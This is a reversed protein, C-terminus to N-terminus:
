SYETRDIVNQKLDYSLSSFRASFGGVRVIISDALEKSNLAEILKAKDVVSIQIQNGGRMFYAKILWKLSNKGNQGSAVSASLRMNVIWTGLALSPNICSVSNLLATPSTKDRGTMCGGSDAIPSFAKRGDPTAKTKKGTDVVSNFMICAPLFASIKGRSLKQSTISNCTFNFVDCFIKDVEKNDNGFFVLEKVDKLYDEYGIFDYKVANAVYSLSYKKQKFVLSYLAYLGDAANALGCVNVVSFNYEAGGNNFETGTRLCNLALVSRIIQPVNEARLKSFLNIQDTIQKVTNKIHLKYADLFAKFSSIKTNAILTEHLCQALNIGADISGVNSKGSIMTESCGGFCFRKADEEDVGIGKLGNVFSDKNYIAPNGGCLVNDIATQWVEESTDEGVALCLNPKVKGKAAKLCLLTHEKYDGIRANWSSTIEMSKFMEELILVTDEQIPYDKLYYDLNGLNDCDDLYFIFNIRVLAGFIDKAPGILFDKYSSILRDVKYGNPFACLKEIIREVLAKVAYVVTLANKSFGNNNLANSEQAFKVYDNLGHKVFYDYDPVFHTYGRGSLAFREEIVENVTSSKCWAEIASKEEEELSSDKLQTKDLCMSYSYDFNIINKGNTYFGRKGTPYLYTDEYTPLPNNDLACLVADTYRSLNDGNPNRFFGATFYDQRLILKKYLADYDIFM